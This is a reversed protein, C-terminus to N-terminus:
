PFQITDSKKIWGVTEKKRGQYKVYYWDPNEDYIYILDGAVLFAKGATSDKPESHFYARKVKIVNTAIHNENRIFEFELGDRLNFDKPPVYSPLGDYLWECSWSKEEPYLMARFTSGNKQLVLKGKFTESKAGLSGKHADLMILDTSNHKQDIKGSFFMQCENTGNGTTESTEYYGTLKNMSKNVGIILTGNDGNAGAGLGSWVSSNFDNAFCLHAYLFINLLLFFHSKYKKM